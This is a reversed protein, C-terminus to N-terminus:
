AKARGSRPALERERMKKRADLFSCPIGEGRKKLYPPLIHIIVSNREEV